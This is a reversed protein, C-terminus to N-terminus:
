NIKNEAAYLRHMPSLLEISHVSAWSQGCFSAEDGISVGLESEGERFGRASPLSPSM